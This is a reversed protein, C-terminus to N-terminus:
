EHFRFINEKLLLLTNQIVDNEVVVFVVVVVVVDIFLFCVCRTMERVKAKECSLLCWKIKNKKTECEGIDLEGESVISNCGNTKRNQGTSTSTWDIGLYLLM